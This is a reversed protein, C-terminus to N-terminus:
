SGVIDGADNIDLAITSTGGPVDITAFLQTDQALAGSNAAALVLGLAFLCRALHLRM